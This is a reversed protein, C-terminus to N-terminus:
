EFPAYREAVAEACRIGDVAASMIGGAYGAGEGCPYVNDADPSTYSPTRIIRVPASTRSEVGTIISDSADFGRIQHGFHGVTERMMATADEGLVDSMIGSVDAIRVKPDSVTGNMYTPYVRGPESRCVGSIFDGLTQVPARYDGGGAAFAAREYRRQLEIQESPTSCMGLSVAIASNSNRGNRAYSSMGNVVLGGEESAAAVVEGGPCMCFTYVARDGFRRSMNYEAHPLRPDGACEGYLAADIDSQLHEIRVGMSFPKPVLTVGRRMLMYYTDRASHGVALIVPGCGTDGDPTVLKDARGGRFVIDRVASNYRIEGGLETIRDAANKVVTRLVDTGIHPKANVLIDDPAGLSHLMDLVARCRRDGIRTTLKGDSFTGAGGAGFQINTNPDLKGNKYFKEVASIRENVSGGRELVLPRYGRAALFLAAFMGAPGFGVIVPREKLPETGLVAENEEQMVESVDRDSLARALQAEGAEVSVSVTYIFRIDGRRRADVSRKSIEASLLRGKPMIRKLKKAATEKACEANYTYPLNIGRVLLRKIRNHPKGIDEAM